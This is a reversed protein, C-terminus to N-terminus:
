MDKIMKGIIRQYHKRTLGCLRHLGEPIYKTQNDYLYSFFTSSYVDDKFSIRMLEKGTTTDIYVM